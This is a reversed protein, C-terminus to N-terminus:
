RTLLVTRFLLLMIFIGLRISIGGRMLSLMIMNSSLRLCTTFRMIFVQTLLPVYLSLILYRPKILVKFKGTILAFRYKFFGIM